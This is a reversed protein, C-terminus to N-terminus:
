HRGPFRVAIFKGFAQIDKDPLIGQQTAITYFLFKYSMEKVIMERIM